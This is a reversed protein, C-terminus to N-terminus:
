VGSNLASNKLIFNISKYWHGFLNKILKKKRKQSNHQTKHSFIIKILNYNSSKNPM